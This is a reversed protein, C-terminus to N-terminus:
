YSIFVVVVPGKTETFGFQGLLHIDILPFLLYKTETEPLHELVIDTLKKNISEIDVGNELLVYTFISNNGWHDSYAGIEQLFSFSIIGEFTFMSNKPLEKMVGTVMFQYKNELTLSQGVPDTNGFYKKALKETLIISHPASLAKQPDGKILPFTFMKLLGSDAAVIASEFFVKDDMRFLIRPLRSVRTQERIEPIKEMWVPGSPYPTVTVHYRQGSYFQDEEVRYINDANTNFKEYSLEDAVWLLLLLSSALGVALGTINILAYGFNKSNNRLAILFFNKIM